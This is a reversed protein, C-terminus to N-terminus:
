PFCTYVDGAIAQESLVDLSALHCLFLNLDVSVNATVGLVICGTKGALFMRGIRLRRDRKM